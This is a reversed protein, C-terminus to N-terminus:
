GIRLGYKEVFKKCQEVEQKDAQPNRGQGAKELISGTAQSSHKILLKLDERLEDIQALRFDMEKDLGEVAHRLDM